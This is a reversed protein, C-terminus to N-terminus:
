LFRPLWESDVTEDLEDDDFSTRWFSSANEEQFEMELKNKIQILYESHCNFLKDTPTKRLINRIM